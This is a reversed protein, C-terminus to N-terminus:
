TRAKVRVKVIEPLVTASGGAPTVSYEFSYVGPETLASGSVNHTMNYGTSDTSWMAGTQLTDSIVSSVTLSGTVVSQGNTEHVARFSISSLDAKKAASGAVHVRLLITFPSNTFVEKMLLV